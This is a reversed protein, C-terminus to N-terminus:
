SMSSDSPRGIQQRADVLVGDARLTNAWRKLVPSLKKEYDDAVCFKADGPPPQSRYLRMM